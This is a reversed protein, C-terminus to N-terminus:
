DNLVLLIRDIEAIVSDLQRRMNETEVENDLAKALDVSVMGQELGTLKDTLDTITKQQTLLAERLRVNETELAAFKRLLADLKKELEEIVNM